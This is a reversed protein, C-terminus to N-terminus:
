PKALPAKRQRDTSLLQCVDQAEVVARSFGSKFYILERVLIAFVGLLSLM